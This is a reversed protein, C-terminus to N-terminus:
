KREFKREFEGNGGLGAPLSSCNIHGWHISYNQSIQCPDTQSIACLKREKNKPFLLSTSKAYIPTDLIRGLIQRLYSVFPRMAAGSLRVLSYDMGYNEDEEEDNFLQM